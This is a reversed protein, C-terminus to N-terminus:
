FLYNANLSSNGYKETTAADPEGHYWGVLSRQVCEAGIILDNWVITIDEGPIYSVQVEIKVNPM